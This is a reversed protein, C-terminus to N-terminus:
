RAQIVVAHEDYRARSGTQTLLYQLVARVPVNRLQISIRMDSFKGQHDEIIFNPIVEGDSQKEIVLGLADIAERLTAEELQYVPVMIDGIEKEKAASKIGAANIRIQGLSYRANAHNPNLAVAKQYAAIAAAPDGAKEAAKGELYFGQARANAEQGNVAAMLGISIVFLAILKKM